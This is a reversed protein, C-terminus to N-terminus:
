RRHDVRTRSRGGRRALWGPQAGQARELLADREEPTRARRAIRQSVESFRARIRAASGAGLTRGLLSPDDAPVPPPPSAPPPGQPRQPRNGKQPRASPPEARTVVAERSLANWDFSLDPHTHELAERVEADLAKRGVRLNGPSRFIYLVRPRPPGSGPRGSHMVYTHEFGRKDRTQRIFPM